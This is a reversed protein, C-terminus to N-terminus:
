QRELHRQDAYFSLDVKKGSRLDNSSVPTYRSAKRRESRRLTRRSVVASIRQHSKLRKRPSNNLGPPITCALMDQWM